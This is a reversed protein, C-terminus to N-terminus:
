KKQPCPKEKGERGQRERELHQEVRQSWDRAWPAIPYDTAEYVTRRGITIM